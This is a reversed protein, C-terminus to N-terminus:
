PMSSIGAAISEAEELSFKNEALSLMYYVDSDESVYWFVWYKSHLEEETPTINNEAMHQLQSESYLEHDESFMLVYWSEDNALQFCKIYDQTTRNDPAFSNRANKDPSHDSKFCIDVSNAPLRTEIGYATWELRPCYRQLQFNVTYARPMICYGGYYGIYDSYPSYQCEEPLTIDLYWSSSDTKPPIMEIYYSSIGYDWEGTIEVIMADNTPLQVTYVSKDNGKVSSVELELYNSSYAYANNAYRIDWSRASVYKPALSFELNLMLNNEEICICTPTSARPHSTSNFLKHSTGDYDEYEWDYNWLTANYKGGSYAINLTPPKWLATNTQISQSPASVSEVTDTFLGAVYEGAASVLNRTPPIYLILTISAAVALGIRVARLLPHEPKQIAANEIDNRIRQKVPDDIIIKDFTNKYYKEIM